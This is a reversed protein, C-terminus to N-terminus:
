PCTTVEQDTTRGTGALVDVKMTTSVGASICFTGNQTPAGTPTFQATNGTFTSTVTLSAPFQVDKLTSIVSGDSDKVKRITYSSTSTPSYALRFSRDQEKYTMAYQQTLRLDGALQRAGQLMDRRALYTKMSSLSIVALIGMLAVAITVEIFSFGKDTRMRNM